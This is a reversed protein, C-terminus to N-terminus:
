AVAAGLTDRKSRGGRLKAILHRHIQSIRSESLGLSTGTQAMTMDNFYYLRLVDRERPCLGRCLHEYLMTRDLADSPEPCSACPIERVSVTGPHTRDNECFLATFSVCVGLRSQRVYREYRRTSLGMRRAVERESARHGVDSSAEVAVRDRRREFERLNRPQLDISRLWDLVAGAIRKAAYTAFKVNRELNYTEVAALLGDFAASVIEDLSVQLSLRPALKKAHFRILHSHRNILENRVVVERGAAYRSWLADTSLKAITVDRVGKRVDINPPRM